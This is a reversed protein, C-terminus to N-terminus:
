SVIKYGNGDREVWCYACNHIADWIQWQGDGIKIVEYGAPCPEKGIAVAIVKEELM